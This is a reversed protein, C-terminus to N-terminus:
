RSTEKVQFAFLAALAASRTIERIEAAAADPTIAGAILSWVIAAAPDAQPNPGHTAAITALAERVLLIAERENHAQQERTRRVSTPVGDYPFTLSVIADGLRAVRSPHSCPLDLLYWIHEAWVDLPKHAAMPSLFETYCALRAPAGCEFCAWPPGIQVLKNHNENAPIINTDM